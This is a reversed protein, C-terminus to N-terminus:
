SERAERRATVTEAVGTVDSEREREEGTKSCLTSAQFVIVERHIFTAWAWARASSRGCGCGAARWRHRYPHLRGRGCWSCGIDARPQQRRRRRPRNPLSPRPPSPPQSQRPRRLLLRAAPTAVKTVGNTAGNTTATQTAPPASAAGGDASPAAATMKSRVTPAVSDLEINHARRGLMWGELRKAEGSCVARRRCGGVAM